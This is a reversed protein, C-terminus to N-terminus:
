MARWFRQMKKDIADKSYGLKDGIEAYTMGQEYAMRLITRMEPDDVNDMWDEMQEILSDVKAIKDIYSARKKPYKPDGYGTIVITKPYGTRYDQATDALLTSPKYSHELSERLEEVEKILSKLKKLDQKQM